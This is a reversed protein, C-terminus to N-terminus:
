LVQAIQSLQCSAIMDQVNKYLFQIVHAIQDLQSSTTMDQLILFRYIKM